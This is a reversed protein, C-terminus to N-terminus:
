GDSDAKNLQPLIKSYLGPKGWAWLLGGAETEQTSLLTLTHRQM